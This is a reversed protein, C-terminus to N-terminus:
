HTFVLRAAVAAFTAVLPAPFLGLALMAGAPLLLLTLRVRQGTSFPTPTRSGSTGAQAVARGAQVAAAAALVAALSLIV